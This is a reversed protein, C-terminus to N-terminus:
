VKVGRVTYKWKCIARKCQRYQINDQTSTAETDTTQCRPCRSKTPFSYKPKEKEPPEPTGAAPEQAKEILAEIRALKAPDAGPLPQGNALCEKKLTKIEKKQAKTLM